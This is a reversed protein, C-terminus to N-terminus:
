ENQDEKGMGQRSILRMLGILYAVIIFVGPSAAFVQFAVRDRIADPLLNVTRDMIPISLTGYGLPERILSVAIIILGLTLAEKIGQLIGEAQSLREVRKVINSSLFTVPILFVMFYLELASVPSILTILLYLLSSIFTVAMIVIVTKFKEPIISKCVQIVLLTVAYIGVLLLSVTISFSLRSSASVILALGTLSMLPSNLGWWPNSKDYQNM